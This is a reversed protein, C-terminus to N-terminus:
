GEGDVPGFGPLSMGVVMEGGVRLASYGSWEAHLAPGLTDSPCTWARGAEGRRHGAVPGAYMSCDRSCRARIHRSAATFTACTRSHSPTGACNCQLPRELLGRARQACGLGHAPAVIARWGAAVTCSAPSSCEYCRSRGGGLLHSCLNKQHMRAHGSHTERGAHRAECAKGLGAKAWGCKFQARRCRRPAALVQVLGGERHCGHCACFTGAIKRGNRMSFCRACGASDVNLQHCILVQYIKQPSSDSVSYQSISRPIGQGLSTRLTRWACSDCESLVFVSDLAHCAYQTAGPHAGYRRLEPEGM